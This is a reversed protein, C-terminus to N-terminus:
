RRQSASTGLSVLAVSVVLMKALPRGDLEEAMEILAGDGNRSVKGIEVGAPGKVRGGALEAFPRGDVSRIRGGDDIWGVLAGQADHVEVRSRRFVSGRAVTFVLSEDPLERVEVRSLRLLRGFPGTVDEAVGVPAHPDGDPDFVDLRRGEGRRVLLRRSELM